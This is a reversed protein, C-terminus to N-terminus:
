IFLDVKKSLELLTIIKRFLVKLVDAIEILFIMFCFFRPM